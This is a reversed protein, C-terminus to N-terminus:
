NRGLDRLSYVLVCCRFDNLSSVNIFGVIGEIWYLNSFPYRDQFGLSLAVMFASEYGGPQKELGLHNHETEILKFIKRTM